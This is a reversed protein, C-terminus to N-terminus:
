WSSIAFFFYIYIHQIVEMLAKKKKKGGLKFKSLLGMSNISEYTTKGGSLHSEMRCDNHLWMLPSILSLLAKQPLRSLYVNGVSHGYLLMCKMM